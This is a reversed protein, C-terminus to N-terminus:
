LSSPVDKLSVDSDGNELGGCISPEQFFYHILIISVVYGFSEVALEVVSYLWILGSVGSSLFVSM